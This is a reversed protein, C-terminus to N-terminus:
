TDSATQRCHLMAFCIAGAAAIGAFWTSPEPVATFTVTFSTQDAQTLALGNDEGQYFYSHYDGATGTPTTSFTFMTGPTPLSGFNYTIRLTELSISGNITQDIAYSWGLDATPRTGAGDPDYNQYTFYNM